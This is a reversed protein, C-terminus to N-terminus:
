QTDKGSHAPFYYEAAAYSVAFLLLFTTATAAAIGPVGYAQMFFYNLIVNLAAAGASLVLLLTNRGLAALGRALVIWGLYFPIQLIHWAQIHAVMYTDASSFQGRQFMIEIIPLSFWSIFLCPPFALGATLLVCRRLLQRLSDWERAATLRAFAPLVAAGLALAGVSGTLSVLRGGFIIGTIAGTGLSAAMAQDTAPILGLIAAGAFLTGFAREFGSDGRASFKFQPAVLLGRRYLLYGMVAFELAAGFLMGNVFAWAGYTGAHYYLMFITVVPSLVPVCAPAALSGQANAIATWLAAGGYLPVLLCLLILWLQALAMEDATLHSALLPLYFSSALAALLGLGCFGLLAAGNARAIAARLGEMGGKNLANMLTPIIAPGACALIAYFLFSPVLYAILFIDLDDGVGFMAAAAVERGFSIFRVAITLFGVIGASRAVGSLTAPRLM